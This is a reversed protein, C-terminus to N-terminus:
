YLNSRNNSGVPLLSERRAKRLTRWPLGVRSRDRLDPM